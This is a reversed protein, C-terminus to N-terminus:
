NDDSVPKKCVAWSTLPTEKPKPRGSKLNDCKVVPVMSARQSPTLNHKYHNDLVLKAQKLKNTEWTLCQVRRVTDSEESSIYSTDSLTAEIMNKEKDTAVPCPTINFPPNEGEKLNRFICLFYM